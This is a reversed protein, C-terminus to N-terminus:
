SYWLDILNTLPTCTMAKMSRDLQARFDTQVAERVSRQLHVSIDSLNPPPFMGQLRNGLMPNM